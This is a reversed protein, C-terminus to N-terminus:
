LLLIILRYVFYLVMHYYKAHFYSIVAMHCKLGLFGHHDMECIRKTLFRPKQGKFEILCMCSSAHLRHSFVSVVYPKESMLCSVNINNGRKVSQFVIAFISRCGNPDMRVYCRGHCDEYGSTGSFASPHRCDKYSETAYHYVCHHCRVGVRRKFQICTLNSQPYQHTILCQRM